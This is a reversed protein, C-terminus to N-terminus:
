VYNPNGQDIWRQLSFNYPVPFTWGFEGAILEFIKVTSQSVNSGNLPHFAIGSSTVDNSPANGIIIGTVEDYPVSHTWAWIKDIPPNVWYYNDICDAGM